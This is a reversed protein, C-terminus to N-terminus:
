VTPELEVAMEEIAQWADAVHREETGSQGISM